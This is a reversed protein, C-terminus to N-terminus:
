PVIVHRTVPPAGPKLTQFTGLETAAQQDSDVIQFFYTTSPQLGSLHAHHCRGRAKRVPEIVTDLHGPQRGYRLIMQASGRTSWAIEAANDGVFEAIPGNTIHEKDSAESNRSPVAAAAYLNSSAVVLALAIAAMRSLSHEM